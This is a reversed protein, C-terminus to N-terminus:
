VVYQITIYGRNYSVSDFLIDDFTGGANRTLVVASQTDDIYMSGSQGFEYWFNGTDNRVIASIGKISSFSLINHPIVVGGTTDMNWDGIDLYKTTLGNVVGTITVSTATVAGASTVKFPATAKTSGGIHLAGDSADNLWIKDAGTTIVASGATVSGLNATIASLTSVNILNATITGASIENATITGATIKAATVAGAALLGTTIQLAGIENTTITGAQLHTAVISGTTIRNGNIVTSKWVHVATGSNNWVVLFDDNGLVPLTASKGFVTPLSLQWYIHKDTTLCSDNAIIYETGNYVVKCNAWAVKGAIPSNSTFAGESLVFNYTTIKNATVAGAQIKVATIANTAIQNATISNAVIATAAISGTTIRNGNIVTSNWVLLYTGANNFAVLFGNNTLTPLAVTHLFVTPSAIEWYIHDDGVDCSSNTISYEVGNYVVKCSTWSISDTPANSTFAGESVIFNASTIHRAFLAGTAIHSAIIEGAGIKAAVISGAQIAPGTVSNTALHNAAIADNAILAATVAAGVIQTTGVTNSNLNGTTANIATLSTKAATIAGALIKAETVANANIQLTGIKNANIEGDVPNIAAVNLLNATILGGLTDIGLVDRPTASAVTSYAASINGSTDKGKLWYYQIQDDPLGGDVFYTSSVNGILVSTNPDNTIKRYINYSAIDAESNATWKLVVIQIGAAATVGTVTAPLTTDVTTTVDINTSFASSVGSKNISAVGFNYLTNTVLGEISITNTNSDVYSYASFASRKYRVHYHDFTSSVIATWTLVVYASQTGITLGQSSLALGLPVIDAVDPIIQSPHITIGIQRDWAGFIPDTEGVMATMSGGSVVDIAPSNVITVATSLPTPDFSPSGLTIVAM